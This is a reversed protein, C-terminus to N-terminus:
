PTANAAGPTAANLVFSGRGNPIRGWTQGDGVTNAPYTGSSVVNKNADLLYIADGSKNSLNWGAVLCFSQGGDPCGAGADDKPAGAVILYASAKLVTGSPIKVASSVKPGGADVDLDAIAFDSLDISASGANFIEAWDVGKGSIENVVVSATGTTANADIDSTSGADIENNTTTNADVDNNTTADTMTSVMGAGSDNSSSTSADIMQTAASTPDAAESCAFATSALVISLVFTRM